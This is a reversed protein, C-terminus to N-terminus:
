EERLIKSMLFIDPRNDYGLSQYFREAADNGAEVTFTIKVVGMRRWIAELHAMIERGYGSGQLEPEVAVHWLNGRRGDFTGLATAVLRGDPLRGGLCTEPNRALLRELEDQRDSLTIKINARAWLALAAPLDAAALPGIKMADRVESM